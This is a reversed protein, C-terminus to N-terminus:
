AVGMYTENRKYGCICEEALPLEAQCCAQQCLLVFVVPNLRCHPVLECSQPAIRAAYARLRTLTYSFSYSKAEDIRLHTQLYQGVEQLLPSKILCM